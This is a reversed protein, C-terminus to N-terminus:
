RPGPGQGMPRVAPPTRHRRGLLAGPARDGLGPGRARRREESGSGGAGLAMTQKNRSQQPFVLLHREERGHASSSPTCTSHGRAAHLHTHEGSGHTSCHRLVPGRWLGCPEPHMSSLRKWGWQHGHSWVRHVAETHVSILQGPSGQPNAERGTPLPRPTLPGHGLNHTHVAGPPSGLGCM